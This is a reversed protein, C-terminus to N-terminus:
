EGRDSMVEFFAKQDQIVIAGTLDEGSHQGDDTRVGGWTNLMPIVEDLRDAPWDMLHVATADNVHRFRIDIM